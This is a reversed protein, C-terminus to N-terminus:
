LDCYLDFVDYDSAASMVEDAMQEPLVIEDALSSEADDVLSAVSSPAPISEGSNSIRAYISVAVVVVVSAAVSVWRHWNFAPSKMKVESEAKKAMEDADIVANMKREFQAFFDDPVTMGGHNRRANQLETPLQPEQLSINKKDDKM